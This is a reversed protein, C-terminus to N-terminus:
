AGISKMLLKITGNGPGSTLAALLQVVTGVQTVTFTVGHPGQAMFAGVSVQGTGNLDQIVLQGNAIVTTGRIIECDLVCSSYISIDVTIGALNTASQGDTVSNKIWPNTPSVTGYNSVNDVTFQVVNNVDELVFKYAGAGLWIAAYGDADLTVPNSNSSAATEDTYTAAPTTTGALYSYLLGGALPLGNLDFFRQKLVPLLTASM